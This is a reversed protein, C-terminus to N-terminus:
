LYNLLRITNTRIWGRGITRRPAAFPLRYITFAVVLDTLISPYKIALPDRMSIVRHMYKSHLIHRRIFVGISAM